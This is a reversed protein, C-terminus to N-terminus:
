QLLLANHCVCLQLLLPLRRCMASGQNPTWIHQKVSCQKISIPNKPGKKKHM